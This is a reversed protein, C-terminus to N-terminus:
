SGDAASHTDSSINTPGLISITVQLETTLVPEVLGAPSPSSAGAPAEPLTDRVASGLPPPSLDAAAHNGSEGWLPLPRLARTAIPSVLAVAQMGSGSVDFTQVRLLAGQMTQDLLQHVAKRM